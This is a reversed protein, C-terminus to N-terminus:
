INQQQLLYEDLFLKYYPMNEEYLAKYFARHEVNEIEEFTPEGQEDVAYVYQKASFGTSKVADMNWKESFSCLPSVEWEKTTCFQDVQNSWEMSEEKFSIGIYDCFAHIQKKPNLLLEDTDLVFPVNPREKKIYNYFQYLARYSLIDQKFLEFVDSGTNSEIHKAFSIYVHHPNRILFVFHIDPNKVMEQDIYKTAAFHMEKIFLNQQKREDNIVKKVEEFTQPIAPNLRGERAESVDPTYTNLYACWGPEHMVVYDNREQMMRLFATSRHRPLSICFITKPKDQSAVLNQMGMLMFIFYRYKFMAVREAYLANVIM